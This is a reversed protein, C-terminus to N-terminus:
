ADGGEVQSHDPRSGKKPADDIDTAVFEPREVAGVRLFHEMEKGTLNATGGSRVIGDAESCINRIVVVQIKRAM